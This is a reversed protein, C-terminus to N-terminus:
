DRLQEIRGLITKRGRNATEYDRVAELEDRSLGALRDVVQTAALADYDPIPLSATEDAASGTAGNGSPATPPPVPAERASTARRSLGALAESARARADGLHKELLPPGAASAMQGAQRARTLQAELQEQRDALESRGRSVCMAVFGPLFDRALSVVGLPAYLLLEAPGLNANTSSNAM